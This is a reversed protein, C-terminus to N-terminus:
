TRPSFMMDVRFGEEQEHSVMARDIDHRMDSFSSHRRANAAAELKEYLGSNECLTRFVGNEYQLLKKPTDYEVVRGSDLVLVRDYDIITKLRHAITIITADMFYKRVSKQIVDDTEMDVNATAEDMVLIKSRNSLARALCILQRQGVSVNDGNESLEYDMGGELSRVFAGIEVADLAKWLEIDSHRSFPDLNKRITGTFLVPEQPIICINSRLDYLGIRSIDVGDICISGELLELFRFLALTVTSKGAGTRGVIGVKHGGRIEFDLGKLVPPLEPAYSLVVNEFKIEGKNPWHSPPRNHEIVRPAEQELSSYEGVREVSNLSNEMEGFAKVTEKVFFSIQIAYTVSLGALAPDMSKSNIMLSIICVNVLLASCLSTRLGFWRNCVGFLWQASNSKDIMKESKLRFADVMGYARITVCGNLSESFHSYVPSRSTAELRKLATSANLFYLAGYYVILSLPFLALLYVPTIVGIVVLVGTTSCMNQVFEFVKEAVEIDIEEMDKSFRNVVRGIPTKDFFRSPVYVVRSLLEGHLVESARLSVVVHTVIDVLVVSICVLVVMGAFKYLYYDSEPHGPVGFSNAYSRIAYDKLIGSMEQFAPFFPYFLAFGVGGAALAYRWYVHSKIKGTTRFEEEMLAGKSKNEESETLMREMDEQDLKMDASQKGADNEADSKVADPTGINAVLRNFESNENGTLDAYSGQEVVTGNNMVVLKDSRSSVLGIQHSVLIRTKDKLYEVICDDFLAKGVHTDVASLPDDMIIIDADQYVARALAIRQKQGGSLNIGKEGIEAMDGGTLLKFDPALCCVQCVKKYRIEDYPKGFIINERITANMIWAQQAVYAIRGNCKSVGSIQEIEGLLASMLSSKGCGTPGLVTVLEGHSIELSIGSLTPSSTSEPKSDWSFSSDAMSIGVPQRPDYAPRQPLDRENLFSMIRKASIFMRPFSELYLPIFFLFPTMQHFLALVAFTGAATLEHGFVKTYMFFTTFLAIAPIGHFIVGFLSRVYKFKKLLRLEDHRAESIKKLFEDEWAFFKITRINALMENVLSIRVDCKEKRAFYYKVIFVVALANIPFSTVLVGFGIMASWGLLMFQGYLCGAIIATCGVLDTLTPLTHSITFVDTSMTNLITGTSLDSHTPSYTTVKHYCMGCLSARYKNQLRGEHHFSRNSALASVANTLLMGGAYQAALWLSPPDDASGSADTGSRHVDEVFSVIKYVFYPTLMLSISFVVYSILLKAYERPCILFVNWLLYLAGGNGGSTSVRSLRKVVNECKDEDELDYMDDQELRRRNAVRALPDFWAYTMQSIYSSKFERPSQKSSFVTRAPLRLSGYVSLLAVMGCTACKVTGVDLGFGHVSALYVCTCVCSFLTASWSGKAKGHAGEYYLVLIAYCTWSAGCILNVLTGWAANGGALGECIHIGVMFLILVLRTYRTFRSYIILNDDKHQQDLLPNTDQSISLSRSYIYRLLLLAAVYLFLLVSLIIQGKEDM